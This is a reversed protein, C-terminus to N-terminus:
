KKVEIRTDGRATISVEGAESGYLKRNRSAVLRNKQRAIFEAWTGVRGYYEGTWESTRRLAGHLGIYKNWKDGVALRSWGFALEWPLTKVAVIVGAPTTKWFVLGPDDVRKEGIYSVARVRGRRDTSWYHHRYIYEIAYINPTAEFEKRCAAVYAKRDAAAKLVAAIEAPTKSSM